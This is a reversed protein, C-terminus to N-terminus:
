QSLIMFATLLVVKRMEEDEVLSWDEITVKIDDDQLLAAIQFMVIKAKGEQNGKACKMLKKLLEGLM